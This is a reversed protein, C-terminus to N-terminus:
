SDLNGYTKTQYVIPMSPIQFQHHSHHHHHLRNCQQVQNHHQGHHKQLTPAANPVVGQHHHHHHHHRHHHRYDQHQGNLYQSAMLVQQEQGSHHSSHHQPNVRSVPEYQRSNSDNNFNMSRDQYIEHQQQQPHHHHHHHQQNCRQATGESNYPLQDHVVSCYLQPRENPDHRQYAMPQHQQYLLQQQLAQQQQVTLIRQSQLKGHRCENIQSAENSRNPATHNQLQSQSHQCDNALMQEGAKELLLRHNAVGHTQNRYQLPIAPRVSQDEPYNLISPRSPKLRISQSQSMLNQKPQQIIQAPFKRGLTATFLARKSADNKVEQFEDLAAPQDMDLPPPPPPPSSISNSRQASKVPPSSEKSVDTNKLPIAPEGLPNNASCREVSEQISPIDRSDSERVAQDDPEQKQQRQQRLMRNNAAAACAAAVSSMNTSEPEIGSSSTHSDRRRLSTIRDAIQAAQSIPASVRRCNLRERSLNGPFDSVPPPPPPPPPAPPSHNKSSSSQVSQQFNAQPISAVQENPCEHPRATTTVVASQYQNIIPTTKDNPGASRLHPPKEPAKPKTTAVTTLTTTSSSSQVPTPTQPPEQQKYFSASDLTSVSSISRTEPVGSSLSQISHSQTLESSISGCTTGFSNSPSCRSNEPGNPAQPLPKNADFQGYNSMDAQNTTLPAVQLSKIRQVKDRTLTTTPDRKPPEPKKRGLTRSGFSAYDPQVAAIPSAITLSVQDGSQRIMSVVQEHSLLRVDSHNVAILFDGRKLGAKEAVSGAEIDDLYQLSALNNMAMLQEDILVKGTVSPNQHNGALTKPDIRAGRLVFGFGEHVKTLKVQMTRYKTATELQSIKPSAEASRLKRDMATDARHFQSDQLDAKQNVGNPLYSPQQNQKNVPTTNTLDTM